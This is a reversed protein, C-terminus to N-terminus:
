TIVIMLADDRSKAFFWGYVEECFPSDKAEQIDLSGFYPKAQYTGSVHKYGWWKEAPKKFEDWIRKVEEKADELEPAKARVMMNRETVLWGDHIKDVIFNTGHYEFVSHFDEHEISRKKGM